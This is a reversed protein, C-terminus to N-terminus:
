GHGFTRFGRDCRWLGCDPRSEPPPFGCSSTALADRNAPYMGSFEALTRSHCMAGTLMSDSVGFL